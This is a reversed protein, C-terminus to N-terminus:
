DVELKKCAPEEVVTKENASREVLPEEVAKKKAVTGEM